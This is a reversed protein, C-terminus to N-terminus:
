SAPPLAEVEGSPERRRRKRKKRERGPVERLPDKGPPATVIVEMLIPTAVEIIDIDPDLQKGLGEAVLMAIHVVTFSPDIQIRHRRLLNMMGTLVESAEIEGLAKGQFTKFFEIVDQEYGDYDTTGVEPAYTYFMRAAAKGDNHAIAHFSEIWPRQLDRPIEAVLGLDILVVRGDPTLIMNGPHLDAHVFADKFVMQQICQAGRLAYLKRDGGVKEPETGRVGEVFEMVLVKETCLDDFLGPVDIGDVEAFNAAFRRNNDAENRFDLQGHMATAFQDVQGRISLLRMTPIRELIRAWLTMLTLDREIQPKALPRQVKIAVKEGTDLRGQHVQAVSAAAVPEPDIEVIRARAEPSLEADLVAEVQSFPIPKVRDQLKELGKVIGPPFIDPRTSLIQGLKVYTAGLKDLMEAAVEGRLLDRQEATMKGARLRRWGYALVAGTMILAIFVFRISIRLSRFM